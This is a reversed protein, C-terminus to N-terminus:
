KKKKFKKNAWDKIITQKTRSLSLSYAPVNKTITSGAGILAKKGIKVPAVLQSDSGIFVDDEIITQHKKIGDYNCAITGAGINVKNGIISDGLYSLHGIKTEKGISSKKIEVFSGLHAENNVKTQPRIHTFPGIKIKNKIVSENIVSFFIESENGIKCNKIKVQPGLHCSKGIINEGEITSFPHIVTDAGIRTNESIFTTDPDIITVGSLMHKNLIEKRKYQEAWALDIKTNIGRIEDENEMLFSSTKIGKSHLIAIVDTLYYEKKKNYTKVNKLASFLAGTEFCYIGTNIENINKEDPGADLEEVIKNIEGNEKVVRGYGTPNKIRCTLVTVKSQSNHHKKLLSKLTKASIFPTDACLVILTGNKNRFYTGLRSIAHGTGM